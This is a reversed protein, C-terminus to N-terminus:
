KFLTTLIENKYAIIFGIETFNHNYIRLDHEKAWSTKELMLTVGCINQVPIGLHKQLM